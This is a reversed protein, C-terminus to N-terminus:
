GGDVMGGEKVYYWGAPDTLYDVSDMIKLYHGREEYSLTLYFRKEFPDQAEGALGEYYKISRDEMELGFRLANMDDKSGKAKAILSDKFVKDLHGSPGGAYVWQAQTKGNKLSDYIRTIAKIHFDEERALEEFIRKALESKVKGASELYFKKGEVEMEVAKRLADEAKSAM